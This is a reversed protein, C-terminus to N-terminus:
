ILAPSESGNWEIQLLSLTSLANSLFCYFDSIGPPQLKQCAKIYVRQSLGLAPFPLQVSQILSLITISQVFIGIESWKCVSERVKVHALKFHTEGNVGKEKRGWDVERSEGAIGALGEWCEEKRVNSFSPYGM